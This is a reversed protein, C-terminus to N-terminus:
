QAERFQALRAQDDEPLADAFDTLTDWQDAETVAAAFAALDADPIDRVRSAVRARQTADSRTILALVRLHIDRDADVVRHVIRDLRQDDVLAIVRNLTADSDIHPALALFTEDDDVAAVFDRVLDDPAIEAFRAIDAYDKTALLKRGIDLVLDAPLRALLSQALDAPRLTLVYEILADLHGADTIATVFEAMDSGPIDLTSQGIRTRQTADSRIMLTLGRLRTEEDGHVAVHVIRDFRDQDLLAILRNLTDDSDVYCAVALFTQDDDVADVFGRVLGDPAIEAFQAIHVYEQKGVLERAIAFVLDDPLHALMPRVLEPEIHAPIEALFEVPVGTAVQAARQPPILVGVHACLIPGFGLRAIQRAIPVPIIKAMAALRDFTHRHREYLTRAIRKRLAGLDARDFAALSDLESEPVDLLLALKTLEGRVRLDIM